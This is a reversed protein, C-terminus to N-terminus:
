LLLFSQVLTKTVETSLRQLQITQSLKAPVTNFHSKSTKHHRHFWSHCQPAINSLSKTPMIDFIWSSTALLQSVYWQWTLTQQKINKPPNAHIHTLSHAHQSFSLSLLDFSITERNTEYHKKVCNARRLGWKVILDWRCVCKHLSCFIWELVEPLSILDKQTTM